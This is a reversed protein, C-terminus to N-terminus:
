TLVVLTEYLYGSFYCRILKYIWVSNDISKLMAVLKVILAYAQRDSLRAM